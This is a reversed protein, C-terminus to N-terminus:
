GINNDSIYARVDFAVFIILLLLSPILFNIFDWLFTSIWFNFVHVGSVFQVHKSKTIREKIIFVVFTSILFAMGFSVNWSIIFGMTINSDLEEQIATDTARPLPHNEAYISYEEGAIYKLIANMVLNLSIATTHMAQNNFHATAKKLEAEQQSWTSAVMYQKTFVDVNEAGIAGLYLDMNDYDESEIDIVSSVKQAFDAYYQGLDALDTGSGNILFNTVPNDWANLSLEASPPDRPGPFIELVACGLTAFITPVLLQVITVLLNRKSHLMKKVLMARFQQVQLKFGTNRPIEHGFVSPFCLLGDVYNM